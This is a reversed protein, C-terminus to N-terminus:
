GEYISTDDKGIDMYDDINENERKKLNDFIGM